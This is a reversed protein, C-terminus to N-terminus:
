QPGGALGCYGLRVAPDAPPPTAHCDRDEDLFWGRWRWAMCASVICRAGKTGETGGKGVARNAPGIPSGEGLIVVRAFPCWKTKAEDETM